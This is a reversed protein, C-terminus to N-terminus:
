CGAMTREKGGSGEKGNVCGFCQGARRSSQAHLMKWRCLVCRMHVCTHLWEVAAVWV